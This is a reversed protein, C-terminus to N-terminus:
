LFAYCRRVPDHIRAMAMGGLHGPTTAPHKMTWTGNQDHSPGWPSPM